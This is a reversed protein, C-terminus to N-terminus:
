RPWRETCLQVHPTGCARISLLAVRVGEKDDQFEDVLDQRVASPTSGDIRIQVLLRWLWRTDLLWRPLAFVTVCLRDLWNSRKARSSRRSHTWCLGPWAVRLAAHPVAGEGRVIRVVCKHHGFVLLKTNDQELMNLVYDAAPKAKARGSM